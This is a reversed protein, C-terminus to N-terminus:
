NSNTQDPHGGGGGGWRCENLITFEKLANTIYPSVNSNVQKGLWLGLITTDSIWIYLQRPM